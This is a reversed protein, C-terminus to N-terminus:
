RQDRLVGAGVPIRARVADHAGHARAGANDHNGYEVREVVVGALLVAAVRVQLRGVEYAEEDFPHLSAVHDAANGGDAPQQCSAFRGGGPREWSGNTEHLLWKDGPIVPLLPIMVM